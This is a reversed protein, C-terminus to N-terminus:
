EYFPASALAVGTCGWAYKGYKDIIRQAHIMQEIPTAETITPALDRGDIGDETWLPAFVGLGGPYTPGPHTWNIGWKGDGPQECRGIEVFFRWNLPLLESRFSEIAHAPAPRAQSVSSTVALISTALLTACLAVFLIRVSNRTRQTWARDNRVDANWEKVQRRDASDVM